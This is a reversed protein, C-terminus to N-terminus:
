RSSKRWSCPEACLKNGNDDNVTYLTVCDDNGHDNNHNNDDGRYDIMIQEDPLEDMLEM